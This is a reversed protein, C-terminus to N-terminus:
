QKTQEKNAQRAWGHWAAGPRAEGLRGHWDMVAVDFWTVGKRAQRAQRAQRAWGPRAM